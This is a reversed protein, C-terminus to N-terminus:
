RMRGPPTKPNKLLRYVRPANVSALVVGIAGIGMFGWQPLSTQMIAAIVLAVGMVVYLVAVLTRITDM